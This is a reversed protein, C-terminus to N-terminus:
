LSLIKTYSPYCLFTVSLLGIMRLSFTNWGFGRGITGIEWRPFWDTFIDYVGNLSVDPSIFNVNPDIAVDIFEQLKSRPKDVNVIWNTFLVRENIM